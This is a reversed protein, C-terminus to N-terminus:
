KPRPGTPTIVYAAPFKPNGSPIKKIKFLFTYLIGTTDWEKSQQVISRNGTKFNLGEVVKGDQYNFFFRLSHKMKPTGDKNLILNGSNDTAESTEAVIKEVGVITEQNMDLKLFNGGGSKTEFIEWDIKPKEM